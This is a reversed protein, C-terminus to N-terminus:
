YYNCILDQNNLKKKKKKATLDEIILFRHTRNSIKLFLM